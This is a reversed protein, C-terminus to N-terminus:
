DLVALVAATLQNTTEQATQTQNAAEEAKVVAARANALILSDTTSGLEELMSVVETMATKVRDIAAVSKQTELATFEALDAADEVTMTPVQKEKEGNQNRIHHTGGARGARAASM